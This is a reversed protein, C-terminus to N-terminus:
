ALQGGLVPREQQAVGADRDDDGRQQQAVEEDRMLPLLVHARFRLRANLRQLRADARVEQEVAHVRDRCQRAAVRLAGLLGDLVQGIQKARRQAVRVAREPELFLELERADILADFRQPEAVPEVHGPVDALQRHAREHRPERHLRQELVRDIVADLRELVAARHRDRAADDVALDLEDDAIGDRSAPATPSGRLPLRRASSLM